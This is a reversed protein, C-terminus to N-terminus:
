SWQQALAKYNAIAVFMAFHLHLYCGDFTRKFSVSHQLSMNKLDITLMLLLLIMSVRAATAASTLVVAPRAADPAGRSSDTGAIDLIREKYHSLPPM